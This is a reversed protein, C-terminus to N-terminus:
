ILCKFIAICCHHRRCVSLPKWKLKELAQSASCYKPMDLIIQVANNQLIQLHDMNVINNKDGWILDDYDLLPLILSNYITLRAQLPLLHRIRRLLSRRQSVKRSLSEIHDSWSMNEHITVGLYKFSDKWELVHDNIKLSLHSCSRVKHQSRFLM